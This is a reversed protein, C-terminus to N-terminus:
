SSEQLMEPHKRLFERLAGAITKDPGRILFPIKDSQDRVRVFNPGMVWAIFVDVDSLLQIVARFKRPDGHGQEELDRTRNERVEVLRPEKGPELEYIHYFKADGFHSRTLNVGDDTAVAVRLAMPGGKPEWTLQVDLRLLRKLLPEM